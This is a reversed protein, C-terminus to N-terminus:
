LAVKQVRVRRILIVILFYLSFVKAVFVSSIDGEILEILFEYFLFINPISESYLLKLVLPRGGFCIASCVVLSLPVYVISKRLMFYLFCHIFLCSLWFLLLGTLPALLEVLKLDTTGIIIALLLGSGSFILPSIVFSSIVRSIFQTSISFGFVFQTRM